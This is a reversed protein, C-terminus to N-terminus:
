CSQDYDESSGMGSQSYRQTRGSGLQSMGMGSGMGSSQSYRQSMGTGMGMQSGYMTTERGASFRGMGMGYQQSRGYMQSERGMGMGYMQSRGYQQSMGSMFGMGGYINEMGIQSLPQDGIGYEQELRQKSVMIATHAKACTEILDRQNRQQMQPSANQMRGLSQELAMRWTDLAGIQATAEIEVSPCGQASNAVQQWKAIENDFEDITSCMMDNTQQMYMEGINGYSYVRDSTLSSTGEM